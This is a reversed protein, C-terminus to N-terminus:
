NKIIERNSFHKITEWFEDPENYRWLYTIILGEEHTEQKISEFFTEAQKLESFPKNKIEKEQKGLSILDQTVMFKKINQM